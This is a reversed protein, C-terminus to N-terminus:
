ASGLNTPGLATMPQGAATMSQGSLRIRRTWRGQMVEPSDPQRAWRVTGPVPVALYNQRQALLRRSYIVLPVFPRLCSKGLALRGTHMPAKTGESASILHFASHQDNYRFFRTRTV